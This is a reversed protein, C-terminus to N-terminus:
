LGSKIIALTSSVILIFVARIYYKIIYYRLIKKFKFADSYFPHLNHTCTKKKENRKFDVKLSLRPKQSM